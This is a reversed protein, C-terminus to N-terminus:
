NPKTTSLNPEKLGSKNKDTVRTLQLPIYM